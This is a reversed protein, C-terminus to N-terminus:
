LTIANWHRQTLLQAQLWFLQWNGTRQGFTFFIYMCTSKVGHVSCSNHLGVVRKQNYRTVLTGDLWIASSKFEVWQNTWESQVRTVLTALGQYRCTPAIRFHYGQRWAWTWHHFSPHPWSILSFNSAHQQSKTLLQEVTFIEVTVAIGAPSITSWLSCALVILHNTM